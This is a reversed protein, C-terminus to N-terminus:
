LTIRSVSIFLFFYLIRYQSIPLSAQRGDAYSSYFFLSLNRVFNFSLKLRKLREGEHLRLSYGGCPKRAIVVRTIYDSLSLSQREGILEMLRHM